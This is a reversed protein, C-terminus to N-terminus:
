LNKWNSIIYIKKILITTADDFPLSLGGAAAFGAKSDRDLNSVFNCTRTDDLPNTERIRAKINLWVFAVSEKFFFCDDETGRNASSLSGNTGAQWRVDFNLGFNGKLRIQINMCSVLDPYNDALYWFQYPTVNKFYAQTIHM